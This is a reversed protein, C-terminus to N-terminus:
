DKTLLRLFNAIRREAHRMTNLSCDNVNLTKLSSFSIVQVRAYILNYLNQNGMLSLEAFAVLHCSSVSILTDYGANKRNFIHRIKFVTRREVDAQVRETNRRTHVDTLDHFRLKTHCSSYEILIVFRRCELSRRLFLNCLFKNFCSEARVALLNYAVAASTLREDVRNKNADDVEHLQVVKDIVLHM